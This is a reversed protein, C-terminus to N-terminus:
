IIMQLIININITRPYDISMYKQIQYVALIKKKNAMM